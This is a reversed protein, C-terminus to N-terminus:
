ECVRFSESGIQVVIDKENIELTVPISTADLRRFLDMEIISPPVHLVARGECLREETKDPVVVEGKGCAFKFFFFDGLFEAEFYTKPEVVLLNGETVPLDRCRILGPSWMVDAFSHHAHGPYCGSRACGIEYGTDDYLTLYVKGNRVNSGRLEQSISISRM